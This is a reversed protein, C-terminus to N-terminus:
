AILFDLLSAIIEVATWLAFGWLFMKWKWHGVADSFHKNQLLAMAIVLGALLIGFIAGTGMFFVRPHSPQQLEAAFNKPLGHLMQLCFIIVAGIVIAILFALVCVTLYRWWATKGRAAFELFTDSSFHNLM